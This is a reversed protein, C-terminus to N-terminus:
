STRSYQYFTRCLYKTIVHRNDLIWTYGCWGQLLPTIGDILVPNHLSPSCNNELNLPGCFLKVQCAQKCLCCYRTICSMIQNIWYERVCWWCNTINLLLLNMQVHTCRLVEWVVFTTTSLPNQAQMYIYKIWILWTHNDILSYDCLHHVFPCVFLFLHTCQFSIHIWIILHWSGQHWSLDSILSVPKVSRQIIIVRTMISVNQCVIVRLIDKTHVLPNIRQCPSIGPVLKSLSLRSVSIHKTLYNNM